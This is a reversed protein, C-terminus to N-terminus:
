PRQEPGRWTSLFQTLTAAITGVQEGISRCFRALTEEEYELVLGRGMEELFIATFELDRVAAAAEGALDALRRDPRYAELQAGEILIALLLDLPAALVRHDQERFNCLYLERLPHAGVDHPVAPPDAPISQPRDSM